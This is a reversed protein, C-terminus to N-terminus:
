DVYDELLRTVLAEVTLDQEHALISLAKVLRTSLKAQLLREAEM